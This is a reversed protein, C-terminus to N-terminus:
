GPSKEAGGSCGDIFATIVEAAAVPAEQLLLHPAHISVVRVDPRVQRVRERSHRTVLADRTAALYLVPVPCARLAAACDLALISRARAAM